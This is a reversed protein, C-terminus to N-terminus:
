LSMREATMERVALRTIETSQFSLDAPVSREMGYLEYSALVRTHSLTGCDLVMFSLQPLRKLTFVEGRRLLRMFNWYHSRLLRDVVLHM